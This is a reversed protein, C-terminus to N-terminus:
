PKLGKEKLIKQLKAEVEDYTARHRNLTKAFEPNDKALKKVVADTKKKKASDIIKDILKNLLGM